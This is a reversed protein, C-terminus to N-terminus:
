GGRSLIPVGRRRCADVTRVVDDLDRPIVVGIPVQRYVSLDSAYLARSGRDFRVAGRITRELEALGEPAGPPAHVHRARPKELVPLTTQHQM